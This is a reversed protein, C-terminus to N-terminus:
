ILRCQVDKWLEGLVTGTESQREVLKIGGPFLWTVQSSELPKPSAPLHLM